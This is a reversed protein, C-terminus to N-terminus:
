EPQWQGMVHENVWDFATGDKRLQRLREDRDALRFAECAAVYQEWTEASSMKDRPTSTKQLKGSADWWWTFRSVDGFIIAHVRVEHKNGVQKLLEVTQKFTDIVTEDPQDAFESFVYLNEVQTLFVVHKMRTAFKELLVPVRWANFGIIGAIAFFGFVDHGNWVAILVFLVAAANACKYTFWYSSQIDREKQVQPSEM